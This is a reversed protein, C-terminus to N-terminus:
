FPWVTTGSCIKLSTAAAKTCASLSSCVWTSHMAWDMLTSSALCSGPLRFLSMLLYLTCCVANACTSAKANHPHVGATFYAAVESISDVLAAAKNSTKLCSGTIIFAVVGADKARSVVAARDQLCPHPVHMPCLISIAHSPMRRSTRFSDMLKMRHMAPSQRETLCIPRRLRQCLGQRILLRVPQSWYGGAWLTLM